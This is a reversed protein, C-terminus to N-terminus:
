DDYDDDIEGMDDASLDIELEDEKDEKKVRPVAPKTDSWTSIKRSSSFLQRAAKFAEDLEKEPIDKATLARLKPEVITKAYEIFQNRIHNYLWVKGESADLTADRVVPSTKEGADLVGYWIDKESM